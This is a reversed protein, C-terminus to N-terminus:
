EARGRRPSRWGARGGCPPLRPRRGPVSWGKIERGGKAKCIYSHPDSRFVLRANRVELGTFPKEATVQCRGLRSPHARRRPPSARREGAAPPPRPARNVTSELRQTPSGTGAAPPKAPAADASRPRPAGRRPIRVENDAANHTDPPLRHLLFFSSKKKKGGERDKFRYAYFINASPHHINDPLPPFHHARGSASCVQSSPPLHARHSVGAGPKTHQLLRAPGATAAQATRRRRGRGGAGGRAIHTREGLRTSPKLLNIALISGHRVLSLLSPVPANLLKATRHTLHLRHVKSSELCAGHTDSPREGSPSQEWPAEWPQLSGRPILVLGWRGFFLGPSPFRWPPILHIRSRPKLSHREGLFSCATWTEKNILSITQM